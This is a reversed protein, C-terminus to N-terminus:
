TLDIMKEIGQHLDCARHADSGYVLPINRKKAEVIVWNPPYPEQCLPKNVGAGNYDLELQRRKMEDLILLIKERMPKACPYKKQFKHVLTIHGIRKPKYAGLDTQISTLVTDYYAEYVNEVSGFLNIIEGFMQASYDLCFYRNDKKLFHVSLISDDLYPGFEDLFKKTKEEYGVIFDIELGIHIQINSHYNKKLTNLISLYSELESRRMASDQYPTPDIFGEPLPAHETFSIETYGLEIAREIYQEFSDQSGHPCFPTHIHGDRM